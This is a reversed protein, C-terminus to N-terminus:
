LDPDIISALSHYTRSLFRGMDATPCQVIKLSKVSFGLKPSSGGGGVTHIANYSPIFKSFIHEDLFDKKWFNTVCENKKEKNFIIVSCLFILCVVYFHVPLKWLQANQYDPSQNTSCLNIGDRKQVTPTLPTTILNSLQYCEM